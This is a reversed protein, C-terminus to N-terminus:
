ESRETWLLGRRVLEGLSLSPELERARGVAAATEASLYVSNRGEHAVGRPRSGRSVERALRERQAQAIAAMLVARNAELVARVQEATAMLDANGPRGLPCVLGQGARGGGSAPRGIRAGWRVPVAAGPRPCDLRM